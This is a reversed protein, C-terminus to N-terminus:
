QPMWIISCIGERPARLPTAVQFVDYVICTDDSPSFMARHQTAHLAMQFRRFPEALETVTYSRDRLCLAVFIMGGSLPEIASDITGRDEMATRIAM